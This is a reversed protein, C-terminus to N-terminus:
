VLGLRAAVVAIIFEINKFHQRQEDNMDPFVRDIEAAVSTLSMTGLAALVTARIADEDEKTVIPPRNFEAVEDESMIASEIEAPFSGEEGIWVIGGDKTTRGTSGAPSQQGPVLYFKRYEM